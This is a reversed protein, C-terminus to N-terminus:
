LDFGRLCLRTKSRLTSTNSHYDRDSKSKDNVNFIYNRLLNFMNSNSTNVNTSKVSYLEYNSFTTINSYSKYAFTRRVPFTISKLTYVSRVILRNGNSNNVNNGHYLLYKLKSMCNKYNYTINITKKPIVNRTNSLINRITSAYNFANGSVGLKTIM